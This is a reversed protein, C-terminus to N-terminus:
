AYGMPDVPTGNVWVEWHLHPGTSYGTSGVYGVVEGTTVQQGPSVALQSQHAYLTALGDGHDILVANGYGGRSGAELVIGSGAAYIPQGYSCNIDVGQHLRRTGSIPHVRYGFGSVVGGDCPWDLPGNGSGRSVGGALAAQEAQLAALQAEWTDKQASITSLVQSEASEEAEAAARAPEHEARLQEVERRQAEAVARAEEAAKQQEELLEQAADVDDQLADYNDIEAQADRSIDGLYRSVLIGKRPDNAFDLVSLVQAGSGRNRYLTAASDEFDAKSADIEAQLRDIELQLAAVDAAIRDVERQAAEQRGTAETIQADLADAVAELEARRGQIEELQAVAFTEEASAEGIAEKLQRQSKPDPNPEGAFSASATAALSAVFALAVLCRLPRLLTM